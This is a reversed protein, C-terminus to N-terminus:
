RIQVSITHLVNHDNWDDGINREHYETWQMQIVVLVKFLETSVFTIFQLRRRRIYRLFDFPFLNLVDLEYNVSWIKNKPRIRLKM